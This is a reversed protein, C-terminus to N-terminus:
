PAVRRTVTSGSFNTKHSTRRQSTRFHRLLLPRRRFLALLNINSLTTFKRLLKMEFGCFLNELYSWMYKHYDFIQLNKLKSNQFIEFKSIKFKYEFIILKRKLVSSLWEVHRVCGNKLPRIFCAHRNQFRQVLLRDRHVVRPSQVFSMVATQRALVFFLRNFLKTRFLNLNPASRKSCRWWGHRSFIRKIFNNLGYTSRWQTSLRFFWYFGLYASTGFSSNGSHSDNSSVM